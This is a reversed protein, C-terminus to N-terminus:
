EKEPLGGTFAESKKLKNKKDDWDSKVTVAVKRPRISSNRCDADKLLNEYVKRYDKLKFLYLSAFGLKGEKLAGKKRLGEFIEETRHAPCKECEGKRWSWTRLKVKEGNALIGTYEETRRGLCPAGNSEEVVHMFTVANAADITLCWGDEKEMLGAPSLASVTPVKHHDKVFKEADSGWACWSHCPDASRFVDPMKRFKETLIGVTSPSSTIDFPEGQDKGEYLNFTFVPMLLTGKKGIIRMLKKCFGEPGEKMHGISSFASHVILKMGSKIGLEKLIKGAEEATINVAYEIRVYGYKELFRLADIISAIRKSDSRSGEEHDVIRICELLSRKGDFLAWVLRPMCIQKRENYPVQCQCFPQGTTLRHPILNLARIEARSLGEIGTNKLKKRYRFYQKELPKIDAEGKAYEKWSLLMEKYRHFETDLLFAKEFNTINREELIKESAEKLDRLARENLNEPLDNLTVLSSVAAAIVPFKEEVIRWDPQFYKGSNHHWIGSPTWFWNTPIGIAPDGGFTDDSLNGRMEASEFGKLFPFCDRYVWDTFFPMCVPSVRYNFKREQYIFSDLSLAGKIKKRRKEDALFSSFGYLEMSLIVRLTKKLPEKREKLLRGIECAVSFGLADDAIFPEYIHAMLAYEEKSEGPIIGTVTYIEGDYIKTHMEAHVTVKGKKMLEMLKVARRPAISFVPLRPAEKEHYWSNYGQGNFWILDDPASELLKLNTIALGAAGALALTRYRKGSIDGGNEGLFVWKGKVDPNEPDLKTFNVIECDVGNAATPASWIVAELPHRATDCLYEEYEPVNGSTIKLFSRKKLDWAQPMICELASTVGDAKHTLREVKSFGAKKLADMCFSTSREFKDYSSTKELDALTLANDQLAYLSYANRIAEIRDKFM